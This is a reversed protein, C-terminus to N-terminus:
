GSAKLRRDAHAFILESGSFYGSSLYGSLYGDDKLSKFLEQVPVRASLM